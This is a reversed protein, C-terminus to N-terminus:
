RIVSYLIINMNGNEWTKVTTLYPIKKFKDGDYSLFNTVKVTDIENKLVQAMHQNDISAKSVGYYKCKALYSVALGNIWNDSLVICPKVLNESIEKNILHIRNVPLYRIYGSLFMFIVLLFYLVYWFKKKQSFEDIVLTFLFPLTPWIYRPVILVLSYLTYWVAIFILLIYHWKKKKKRLILPIILIGGFTFNWVLIRTLERLNKGSRDLQQLLDFQLKPFQSPDFWYSTGAEHFLIPQSFFGFDIKKNVYQLYNVAASTGFTLQHYKTSLILGWTIPIIVLGTTVALISPLAKKKQFVLLISILFIVSIPFFISKILFGTGGLLGLIFWYFVNRKEVLKLVIWIFWICFITLLLDPTIYLWSYIFESPLLVALLSVFLAKTENKLIKSAFFFTSVFFVGMLLINLLKGTIPWSTLFSLPILLWSFMPNWYANLAAKINGERYYQAIELYSIEDPHLKFRQQWQLYGYAVLVFVFIIFFWFKKSNFLRNIKQYSSLM